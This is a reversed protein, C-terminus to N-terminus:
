RIVFSHKRRRPGRHVVALLQLYTRSRQAKDSWSLAGGSLQAISSTLMGSYTLTACALSSSGLWPLNTSTCPFFIARNLQVTLQVGDVVGTRM